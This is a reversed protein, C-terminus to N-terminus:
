GNLVGVGYTTEITVVYSLRNGATTIDVAQIGVVDPVALLTRRLAAEYQAVNPAGSWATSFFPMGQDTAYIMEGLSTQAAQQAAQLVAQLNTVIALSGDAGIYLDNNQDAAFTQM